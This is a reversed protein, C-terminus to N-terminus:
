MPFQSLSGRHKGTPFKSPAIIVIPLEGLNGIYSLSKPQPLGTATLLPRALLNSPLIEAKRPLSPLPVTSKSTTSAGSVIAPM